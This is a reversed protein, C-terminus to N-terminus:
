ISMQRSRNKGSLAIFVAVYILCAAAWEMILVGTRLQIAFLENNQRQPPEWIESQIDQGTVHGADPTNISKEWPAFLMSAAIAGAFVWTAVRQRENM